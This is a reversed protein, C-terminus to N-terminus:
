GQRETTIDKNLNLGNERFLFRRILVCYINTHPNQKSEGGGGRGGMEAARPLGSSTYACEGLEKM